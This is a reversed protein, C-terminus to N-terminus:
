IGLIDEIMGIVKKNQSQLEVVGEKVRNVRWYNIAVLNEFELTEFMDSPDVDFKSPPFNPDESNFLNDLDNWAMIDYTFPLFQNQFEFEWSAEEGKLDKLRASWNALAIRLEESKIFGLKGSGKVDDLMDTNPTCRSTEGIGWAIWRLM